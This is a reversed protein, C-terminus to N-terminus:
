QASVGAYWLALSDSLTKPSPVFAALGSELDVQVRDYSNGTWYYMRGAVRCILSVNSIGTDAFAAGDWTTIPKVPLYLLGGHEVFRSSLLVSSWTGTEQTWTQGDTSWFIGTSSSVWWRGGYWYADYWTGLDVNATYATWTQGDDNSVWVNTGGGMVADNGNFAMYVAVAASGTLVQTWTDGNDTSRYVTLTTTGSTAILTGTTRNVRMTTIAAPPTPASRTMGPLEIRQFYPQYTTQYLFLHKETNTTRTNATYAAYTDQDRWPWLRVPARWMADARDALAQFAPELSAATRRDVGDEPVWIEANPNPNPVLKKM